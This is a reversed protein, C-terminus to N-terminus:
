WYVHFRQKWSALQPQSAPATPMPLEQEEVDLRMAIKAKLVHCRQSTVAPVYPTDSDSATYTHPLPEFMDHHTRDSWLALLLQRLFLICVHFTAALSLSRCPRMCTSRLDHGYVARYCPAAKM